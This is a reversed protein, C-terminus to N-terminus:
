GARRKRHGSVSRDVERRWDLMEDRDANRLDLPHRRAALEDRLEQRREREAAVEREARAEALEREVAALREALARVLGELEANTV